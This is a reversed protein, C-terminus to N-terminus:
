VEWSADQKHYVAAPPYDDYIMRPSPVNFLVRHRIALGSLVEQAKEVSWPTGADHPGRATIILIDDGAASCRALMDLAGPLWESTHYHLLTGDLDFIHTM